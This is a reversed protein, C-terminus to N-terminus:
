GSSMSMEVRFHLVNNIGITLPVESEDRVDRVRRVYISNVVNVKGPVSISKIM